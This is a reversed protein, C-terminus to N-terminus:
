PPPQPDPDLDGVVANWGCCRIELEYDDVALGLVDGVKATLFGRLTSTWLEIAGLVEPDRIGAIALTQYGVVGAGELKITYPQETFTSGTVRVCRDNVATYVSESVDLTGSLERMVFPNANEYIMHAAVSLPTCARVYPKM